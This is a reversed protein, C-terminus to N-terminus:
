CVLLSWYSSSVTYMYINVTIHFLVISTQTNSSCSDQLKEPAKLKLTSM